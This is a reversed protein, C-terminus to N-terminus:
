SNYRSHSIKYASLTEIAMKKWSFEQARKLGREIMDKRLVEDESLKIIANTMDNMDTPDFIVAADGAIEPISARNSAAVPCGLSMAELLPIGFGEFLSPLVFLRAKKYLLKLTDVSVFGALVIKDEKKTKAIKDRITDLSKGTSGVLVLQLSDDNLLNFSEILRDLNKHPLLSAVSLIYNQKIQLKELAGINLDEFDDSSNMFRSSEYTVIVKNHPIKLLNVIDHKANNSVTMIIDSKRASKPIFYKWYTLKSRSLFQPYYKYQMDHITVVKAFNGWLPSVYGPSHLVDIKQNKMKKPLILQEYAIRAYKNEASVDCFFKSFNSNSINFTDHNERNTFIIYENKHDLMALERILHRVYTETGGVKEPLLYLLNIGLRM